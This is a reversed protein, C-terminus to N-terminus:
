VGGRSSDLIFKIAGARDKADTVLECWGGDLRRWVQWGSMIWRAAFLTGAAPTAPDLELADHRLNDWRQRARAGAFQADAIRDDETWWTM